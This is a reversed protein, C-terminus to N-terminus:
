VGDERLWRSRNCLWEDASRANFEADRVWDQFFLKV